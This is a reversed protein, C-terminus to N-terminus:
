ITDVLSKVIGGLSVVIGGLHGQIGTPEHQKSVAGMIMDPLWPTIFAESTPM